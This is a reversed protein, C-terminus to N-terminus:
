DERSSWTDPRLPSKSQELHHAQENTYTSASKRGVKNELESAYGRAQLGGEEM